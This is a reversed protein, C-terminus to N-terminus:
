LDRFIKKHLLEDKDLESMLEWNKEMELNNGSSRAVLQVAKPENLIADTILSVASKSSITPSTVKYYNTHKETSLRSQLIEMQEKTHKLQESLQKLQNEVEEFKQVFYFNKRLIGAAIVDIKKKSDPLSCFSVLQAKQNDLSLQLKSLRAKEIELLTKEKALAFKEQLFTAQNLTSWDKNLFIFERQHYENIKKDLNLSDRKFHRLSFRLTKLKGQTFINQAISIARQPSIIKRQLAFKTDLTKEYEKKLGFFHRRIIDYVERTKYIDKTEGFQTVLENQLQAVARNLSESAEKLKQKAFINQQLIHHTVLAINNKFDPSELKKEVDDISSKLLASASFLSFIKSKVGSVLEEYVKLAELKESDPKKLTKLMDELNKKQALLESYRQWIERENKTMYELKAQEQADHYSIIIRKWHNVEAVASFMKAQMEQLQPNLFKQSLFEKSDVFKKANLCSVQAADKTELEETQKNLSDLHLLLDFHQRRLSRFKKLQEIKPDDDDKSSIVGIYKEPIRNFLRALFDDGNKEAEEKQAKLTRHDVRISFGNKELVENQIQAFDARIVSLFSKDAWQRNKPAGRKYKEQFSPESGDKKKRAPYKFFNCAAREKIKEVDDIIRESFMIHVHPHHQGNSMTGIKNHIAYAYYHDKLHKEIFADIIQRYQEVTQLENPLAFEIEMYRRNGVGEYKDAAKFFKKPDDKTWKPLHHSHFICGGRSEFAKERNIYEVHSSAFVHDLKEDIRELIKEASWKALRKREDSFDWRVNNCCNKSLQELKDSEDPSLLLDTADSESPVLPLQSLTPLCLGKSTATEITKSSIRSTFSQPIPRKNFIVGSNAVFKKRENKLLEKQKLFENQLLKDDFTIPLNSILAANLISKKFAPSGSIILPKHEMKEDALMLAIALTTPSAKETVEIGQATNRISGLIDTKYLLTELGNCADKVESSSIFNGVFKNNANWNEINAFNGERRIYDVHQVASIKTGDPKKDSKLRFHFMAM